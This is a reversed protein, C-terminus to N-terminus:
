EIIVKIVGISIPQFISVIGFNNFLSLIPFTDIDFM